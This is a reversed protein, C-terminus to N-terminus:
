KNIINIKINLKELHELMKRIDNNSLLIIKYNFIKQINNEVIKIEMFPLRATSGYKNFTIERISKIDFKQARSFIQWIRPNILLYDEYLEMSQYIAFYFPFAFLMLYFFRRISIENFGDVWLVPIAILIFILLIKIINLLRIKLTYILM